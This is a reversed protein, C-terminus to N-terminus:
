FKKQLYVENTKGVTKRSIIGKIELHKLILSLGTKSMGTRFRLTSQQIGQQERIASIVKQEEPTFGSLFAAFEDKKREEAKAKHLAGSVKQSHEALIKKSKDIWGVYVGLLILVVALSWGFVYIMIERDAHLCTGDELFCSAEQQMVLKIYSDERVKVVYVMGALLLGAIILLAGIHKQEM